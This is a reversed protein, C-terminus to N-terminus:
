LGGSRVLGFATRLFLGRALSRAQTESGVGAVAVGSLSLAQEPRRWRQGCRGPVMAAGPGFGVVLAGGRTARFPKNPGLAARLAGAGNGFLTGEVRDAGAM